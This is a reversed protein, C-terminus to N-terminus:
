EFTLGTKLTGEELDFYTIEKSPLKIQYIYNSKCSVKLIQENTLNLIIGLINM